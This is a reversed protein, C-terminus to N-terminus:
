AGKEELEKCVKEMLDQETSMNGYILTAWIGGILYAAEVGRETGYNCKQKVVFSILRAFDISKM